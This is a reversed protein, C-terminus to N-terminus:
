VLKRAEQSYSEYDVGEVLLQIELEDITEWIANITKQDRQPRTYLSALESHLVNLQHVLKWLYRKRSADLEDPEMTRVLGM